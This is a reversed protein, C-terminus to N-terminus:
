PPASTRHLTPGPPPQEMHCKGLFVRERQPHGLGRPTNRPCPHLTLRRPVCTHAQEGLTGLSRKLPAAAKCGAEWGRHVPPTGASGPTPPLCICPVFCM